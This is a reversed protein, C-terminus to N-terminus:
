RARVHKTTQRSREIAREVVDLLAAAADGATWASSGAQASRWLEEPAALVDAIATALEPVSADAAVLRVSALDLEAASPISTILPLGLAVADNVAGSSEGNTRARLQVAVWGEAAAAGYRDDPLDGTIELHDYGLEAARAHLRAALDPRCDGVFRLKTADHLAAVAELLELPRKVEDVIGLSVVTPTALRRPHETLGLDDTTPIPLPIVDIPTTREPGLEFRLLAAAFASNVILQEAQAAVRGALRIGTQRYVEPDLVEADTLGKPWRWGYTEQLVRRM